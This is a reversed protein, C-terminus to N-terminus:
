IVETMFNKHAKLKSILTQTIFKSVVKPDNNEILKIFFNFLPGAQSIIEYEEESIM